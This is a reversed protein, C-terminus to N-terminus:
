ITLSVIYLIYINAGETHLLQQTVALKLFLTYVCMKIKHVHTHEEFHCIWGLTEIM